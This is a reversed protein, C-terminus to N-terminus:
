QLGHAALSRALSASDMCSRISPPPQCTVDGRSATRSALLVVVAGCEFEDCLEKAFHGSMLLGLRPIDQRPAPPPPPPAASPPLARHGYFRERELLRRARRAKIAIAKLDINEDLPFMRCLTEACQAEVPQGDRGIKIPKNDNWPNRLLNTKSFPVEHRNIWDLKFVGSLARPSMRPPLVWRIPAHNKDSEGTVRAYGQFKGSEKVSFILIVNHCEKYSQNIRSENYPPTSWVGKAKALAVNEHNNSKILFFQAGRFIYKLKSSQDSSRGSRPETAGKNTTEAVEKPPSTSRARKPSGVSETPSGSKPFHIPSIDRKVGRKRGEDKEDEEDFNAYIDENDDDGVVSDDDALSSLPPSASGSQESGSNSSGAESRTDYEQEMPTEDVSASKVEEVKVETKVEGEVADVDLLGTSLAAQTSREEEKLMELQKKREENELELQKREKEIQQLSAAETDDTDTGLSTQSRTKRNSSRGKRHVSKSALTPHDKKEEPEPDLYASELSLIDDLVNVDGDARGIQSDSGAAIAYSLTVRLPM